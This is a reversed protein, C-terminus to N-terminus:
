GICVIPQGVPVTKQGDKIALLDKDDGLLYANMFAVVIGGVFRRMPERSKGNKCLCYTTKGRLGETDDDLLDLHGYDKAVFHCAPEQCENFFDEHNVGKPACPPFLPNKKVEGLGTGIVMVAMDLDFSHPVYTLVPPPTQKGKDMGDVPDIGILASFKLSTAEKDLALAFAVKGGRSHGALGLKNINPQVHPPLLYHLGESLWNTIAATSKIEDTTDPGALIYLQPAIVIFGHSAIHQILQSYFSNYLLYGHLLVLIPYEGAESPRAILLPKPPPVALTSKTTCSRTEVKQLVTKYRGIAFVNTVTTTAADATNAATATTASSMIIYSQIFSFLLIQVLKM